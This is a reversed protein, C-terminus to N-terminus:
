SLARKEATSRERREKLYDSFMQAASSQTNSCVRPSLSGGNDTSRRVCTPPGRSTEGKPRPVLAPNSLKMVAPM